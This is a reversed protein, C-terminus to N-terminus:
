LLGRAQLAPLLTSPDDFLHTDFGMAAAGAINQPSDDIFILDAPEVGFRELAIQYIRADPKIVKEDGSVVAGALLGFVPSQTQVVPWCESEMNTLAYQPVGRAALAQMADETEAICGSLMDSWRTHWLGILESHEPFQASLEAVNAALSVGADARLNWAPSCVDTLFREMEAPDDFYQRYLTRPNWRVIVNGVDWLVGRVV